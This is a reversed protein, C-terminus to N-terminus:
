GRGRLVPAKSACPPLDAFLTKLEQNLNPNSTYDFLQEIFGSLILTKAQSDEFGRTYLYNLQDNTIGTTVSSFECSTNKAAIYVDPKGYSKSEDDTQLNRNNIYVQSNDADENVLVMSQIVTQSKGSSMSFVNQYSSSNEGQHLIKTIIESDGGSSNCALGVLNISANDYLFIQMIHKNLQGGKVFVDLDLKAHEHVHIEYLFIQQLDPEADNIFVLQMDANEELKITLHKAFLAQEPPTQRFIISDSLNEALKITSADIMKFKKDFYKEPTFQWDPDGKEAKFYSHITM